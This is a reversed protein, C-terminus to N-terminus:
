YSKTIQGDTGIVTYRDSRFNFITVFGRQKLLKKMLELASPNINKKANQYLRSKSGNKVWDRIWKRHYDIYIDCFESCVGRLICKYCPHNRTM